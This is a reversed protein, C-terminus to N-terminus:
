LAFTPSDGIHGSGIKRPLVHMLMELVIKDVGLKNQMVYIILELVIRNAGLQNQMVFIFGM